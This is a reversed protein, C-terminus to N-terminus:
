AFIFRYSIHPNYDHPVFCSAFELNEHILALLFAEHGDVDGGFKGICYACTINKPLESKRKLYLWIVVACKVVTSVL